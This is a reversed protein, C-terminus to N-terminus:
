REFNAAIGETVEINGDLAAVFLLANVAASPLLSSQLSLSWLNPNFIMNKNNQLVHKM